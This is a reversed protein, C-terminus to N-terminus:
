ANIREDNQTMLERHYALYQKREENLVDEELRYDEWFEKVDDSIRSSFLMQGENSFSIYKLDFLSDITRSLLLGNNPDYAETEDSKIFPKIHSAILVPYSLKELMCKSAGYLESSEKQLQVKYIRHLYPDRTKRKEDYEDGFINKADEEFYLEDNVFIVDNLKNLFNFLYAVQNYKRMKFKIDKAEKKYVDLESATLYGKEVNSIDVLMLAEIEKKTLKGVEELTKILFNVENTNSNETVSRNLSSNSYLIRSFLEHRRRNTNADLFPKTYQHYTKLQFNVFGLKVFQNISKRISGKDAKPYKSDVINQLDDFLSSKYESMDNNDIYDVIIQLTGNFREGHIDTYEVTIRWYDEYNQQPMSIKKLKYKNFIM